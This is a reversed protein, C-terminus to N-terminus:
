CARPIPGFGTFAGSFAWCSGSGFTLGFGHVVSSQACLRRGFTYVAADGSFDHHLIRNPFVPKNVVACSYGPDM